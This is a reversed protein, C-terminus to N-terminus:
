GAAPAATTPTTPTQAGSKGANEQAERAPTEAKEHTPDENPGHGAGGRFQGSNEAAEQAASENKEHTPDENSKFSGPANPTAAPAKTTPTTPKTTTTPGTAAGAVGSIGLALGAAGGALLGVALGAAALRNRMYIDKRNGPTRGRM